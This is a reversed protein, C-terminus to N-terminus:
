EATKHPYTREEAFRSGVFCFRRYVPWWEESLTDAYAEAEQITEFPDSPKGEKGADMLTVYYCGTESMGLWKAAPSSPYAYHVTKYM